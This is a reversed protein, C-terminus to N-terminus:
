TGDVDFFSHLADATEVPNQEPFFHGGALACGRVDRAWNRWIGLPGGAEAYWTDLASEASWLVLLPCEIRRGAERDTEDHAIDLSSAARFEECIAHVAAPDRLADIYANRIEAPFATADSGWCSLANDVIADPSSAILREPFPTPQVLLSWPWFALMFQAGARGYAEATPIIDLVALRDISDPHDLALRYAARAGRDHGALFFRSFGQKKMMGIMDRAMARKAYPAHDRSSAPKGSAGYGRLDACIVTFDATLLPAVRHWMLHTEPFGHLLLLPPGSGARRIFIATEGSDILCSEFNDFMASKM